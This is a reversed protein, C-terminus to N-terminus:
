IPMAVRILKNKVPIAASKIFRMSSPKNGAGPIAALATIISNPIKPVQKAADTYKVASKPTDAYSAQERIAAFLYLIIANRSQLITLSEIQTRVPNAQWTVTPTPVM